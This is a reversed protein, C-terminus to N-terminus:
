HSKLFHKLYFNFFGSITVYYGMSHYLHLSGFETNLSKYWCKYWWNVVRSYIDHQRCSAIVLSELLLRPHLATIMNCLYFVLYVSYTCSLMIYYCNYSSLSVLYLFWLCRFDEKKNKIKQTLWINIINSFMLSYRTIVINNIELFKISYITIVINKILSLM